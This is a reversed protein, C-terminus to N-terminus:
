DASYRIMRKSFTRLNGEMLNVLQNKQEKKDISFGPDVNIAKKGWRRKLLIYNEPDSNIAIIPHNTFIIVQRFDKYKKVIPILFNVIDENNLYGEPADVILPGVKGSIVIICILVIRKLSNDLKSFEVRKEKRRNWNVNLYLKYNDGNNEVFLLQQKEEELFNSVSFMDNFTKINEQKPLGFKDNLFTNFSEPSVILKNALNPAYFGPKINLDEMLKELNDSHLEEVTGDKNNISYLYHNKANSCVVYYLSHSNDVKEIFLKVSGKVDAFGPYIANQMLNFLASKGTELRGVVCNLHRNFRIFRKKFYNNNIEVGYIYFDSRDETPRNPDAGLRVRSSPVNVAIKLGQFSPEAMKVYTYRRAIDLLSHADSGQFYALSSLGEKKRLERIWTNLPQKLGKHEKMFSKPEVVELAPLNKNKYVNKMAGSNIKYLNLLAQDSGDVHAIIPLGGKSAILDITNYVSTKGVEQNQGWDEIEFGIEDLLECIKFHVKRRPQQPPFIALMHIGTTSIEVGPLIILEIRGAKENV